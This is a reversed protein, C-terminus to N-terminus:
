ASLATLSRPSMAGTSAPLPAAPCSRGIAATCPWRCRTCTTSPPTRPRGAARRHDHRVAAPVGELTRALVVPTALLPDDLTLEAGYVTGIGAPAAAEALRRAAGASAEAALALLLPVDGGASVVTGPRIRGEPLLAGLPSAYVPEAAGGGARVRAVPRAGM